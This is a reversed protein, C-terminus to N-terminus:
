VKYAVSFTSSSALFPRCHFCGSLFKVLSMADDFDGKAAAAALEAVSKGKVTISSSEDEVPDDDYFFDIFHRALRAM